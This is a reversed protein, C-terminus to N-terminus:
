TKMKRPSVNREMFQAMTASIRSTLSQFSVKEETNHTSDGTRM